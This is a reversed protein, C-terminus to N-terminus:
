RAHTPPSANLRDPGVRVVVSVGTHRYHSLPLRQPLLVVLLLRLLLLLRRQHARFLASDSSEADMGPFVRVSLEVLHRLAVLPLELYSQIVRHLDLLMLNPQLM